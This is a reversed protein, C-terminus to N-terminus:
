NLLMAKTVGLLKQPLEVFREIHVFQNSGYIMEIVDTNISRGVAICLVKVDNNKLLTVVEKTSEIDNPAGDTIMIVMNNAKKAAVIQHIMSWYASYAPTNGVSKLAAIRNLVKGSVSENHSKLLSLGDATDTGFANAATEIGDISDIVSLLSYTAQKAQEINKGMSGSADTLLGVFADFGDVQSTKKQFIRTEGMPLRSIRSRYLRKCKRTPQKSTKTKDELIRRVAQRLYSTASNTAQLFEEARFGKIAVDESVKPITSEPVSVHGAPSQDTPLNNNIESSISEGIDGASLDKLQDLDCNEPSFKGSSEGEGGADQEGEESEEDSKSGSQSEDANSNEDSKEDSNGASEADNEDSKEDSDGKSDGQNEEDDSQHDSNSKGQNQDQGDEDDSKEETDSDGKSGGEDDDESQKESNPKSQSQGQNEEDDSKEESNSGSNNASPKNDLPKQLGQEDQKILLEIIEWALGFIDAEVKCHAARAALKNLSNFFDSGYNATIVESILKLQEPYKVEYGSLHVRVREWIFGSILSLPEKTLHLNESTYKAVTNSFPVFLGPFSLCFLQEIRYDELINAIHRHFESKANLSFDSFMIHASEHALFVHLLEEENCNRPLTITQGDTQARLGFTVKIDYKQAYIGALVPLSRHLDM